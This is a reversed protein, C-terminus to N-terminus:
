IIAVPGPLADAHLWAAAADRLESAVPDHRWQPTALQHQIRSIRGAVTATHAPGTGPIMVAHLEAGASSLEGQLLLASALDLRAGAAISDSLVNGPSDLVERISEEARKGDGAQLWAAGACAAARVQDFRFEGGIDDQLEDRTDVTLELDVAAQQLAAAVGAIDGRAAYARAAIYRLRVRPSGAPAVLLGRDIADLAAPVDDRWFSVTAQLGYTWATLSAHGALDSYATACHTLLAAADWRGLDFATSAMLATTQGLVAYLDALRQPRHTVPLVELAIDALTKAETFATALPTRNYSRALYRVREVLHLVTAPGLDGARLMADASADRAAAMLTASLSDLHPTMTPAPIGAVHATQEPAAAMDIERDAPRGPLQALERLASSRHRADREAQVVRDRRQKHDRRASALQHYARLLEGSSGLQRDCRQWFSEAPVRHGAEAGGITSRGYNIQRALQRQTLGAANRHATLLDGLAVRLPALDDSTQPDTTLDATSPNM